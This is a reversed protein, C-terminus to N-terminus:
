NALVSRPSWEVTEGAPDPWEQAGHREDFLARLRALPPFHIGRQHSAKWSACEWQSKLNRSIVISSIHKFDPVLNRAACYFGEGNEEGSTVAVDPYLDRAWPLYGNHCLIEVLRDVGRRSHTKQEALAETQPVLRVNFNTLDRNLLVHLLAQRGGNEMESAISAFYSHDQMHADSVDLV